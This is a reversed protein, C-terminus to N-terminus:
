RGQERKKGKDYRAQHELSVRQIGTRREAKAYDHGADVRAAAVGLRALADDDITHGHAARALIMYGLLLENRLTTLVDMAYSRKSGLPPQDGLREPFLASFDLGLAGLV